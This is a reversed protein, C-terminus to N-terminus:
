EFLKLHRKRVQIEQFKLFNLDKLTTDPKTKGKVLRDVTSGKLDFVASIEDLREVQATNEMLMVHVERMLITNVTFVGFIKALLTNCNQKIHAGFAPLKELFLRLEEKTMTKIIFKRDHSFFFFSGSRGAGEGAKFVMDRNFKPSLSAYLNPLQSTFYSSYMEKFLDIRHYTVQVEQKMRLVNKDTDYHIEVDMEKGLKEAKETVKKHFRQIQEIREPDFQNSDNSEDSQEPKSLNGENQQTWKDFDKIKVERLTVTKSGDNEVRLDLKAAKAKTLECHGNNCTLYSFQTIGKLIIYVLEVNFSSALFFFLPAMQETEADMNRKEASLKSRLKLQDDITDSIIVTNDSVDTM